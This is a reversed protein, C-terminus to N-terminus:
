WGRVLRYPSLAAKDRDLLSVGGTIGDGTRNYTIGVNGAHEESVGPAAVLANSAIQAVIQGIGMVGFGATYECVVSRWKGPFRHCPSLRILGDDRWEYDEVDEGLVALRDVKTVGLAPLKLLRGAGEGTYVCELSPSVHWGCWDRVAASVADLIAEKREDSSSLANGTLKDFEEVDIISPLHAVTYGWPTQVTM